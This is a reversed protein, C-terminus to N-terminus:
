PEVLSPASGREGLIEPGQSFTRELGSPELEWLKNHQNIHHLM